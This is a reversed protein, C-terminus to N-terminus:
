KPGNLEGGSGPPEELVKGSGKGGQATRNNRSADAAGPNCEAQKRAAVAEASLPDLKRATNRSYISGGLESLDAGEDAVWVDPELWESITASWREAVKQAQGLQKVHKSTHTYAGAAKAHEHKVLWGSTHKVPNISVRPANSRRAKWATGERQKLVLTATREGNTEQARVVDGQAWEETSWADAVEPANEKRSKKTDKQGSSIERPKNKEKQGTSRHRKSGKRPKTEEAEAGSDAGSSAMEAESEQAKPTEDAATCEMSANSQEGFLEKRPTPQQPTQQEPKEAHSWRMGPSSLESDELMPIPSPESEKKGENKVEQMPAEAETWDGSDAAAFDVTISAGSFTIEVPPAKCLRQAEGATLTWFLSRSAVGDTSIKTRFATNSPQVALAKAIKHVVETDIRPDLHSVEVREGPAFDKQTIKHVLVTALGADSSWKRYM